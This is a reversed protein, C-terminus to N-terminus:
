IATMRIIVKTTEGHTVPATITVPTLGAKIATIIKIGETLHLINSTGTKRTKRKINDPNIIIKVGTVPTTTDGQLVTIKMNLKHTPFNVIKKALFYNRVFDPETDTVTKVILDIREKLLFDNKAMYEVLEVRAAEKEIIHQRLLPVSERYNNIKNNFSALRTDTIGYKPDMLDKNDFANKYIIKALEYLGNDTLAQIESKVLRTATLIAKKNNVAAWATVKTSIFYTEEECLFRLRTKGTSPLSTDTNLIQILLDIHGNNAQFDQFFQDFDPLTPVIVTQGEIFSEVTTFMKFKAEIIQNISM